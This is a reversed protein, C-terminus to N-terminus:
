AIQYLYENLEEIIDATQNNFIKNLRRVGGEGSFPPENLDDLTLVSEQELQKKIKDLWKLQVRNWSRNNKLKEVAQKVREKHSILATNLAARRVHTILDAVIEENTLLKYATNLQLRNYGQEDLLFKLEKLDRRTLSSPKTCVINLAAVENKNQQIYTTFSELYDKPKLQKDFARAVNLIEDEHESYLTTYNVARGKERDLYTWLHEYEALTQHLESPAVAKLKQGFHKADPEEAFVAFRELQEQDFTRTKRQLKALIRDLKVERLYDDEILALEETLNAFTKTVLPAVPKMVNEKAM